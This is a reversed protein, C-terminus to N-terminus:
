MKSCTRCVRGGEPTVMANVDDHGEDCFKHRVRSAWSKRYENASRTMPELHAVLICSRRRCRHELTLGEPIPGKAKEYSVRHALAGSDDRGYGDRDLKGQWVLCGFIKDRVATVALEGSIAFARLELRM